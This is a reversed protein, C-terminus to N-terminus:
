PCQVETFSSRDRGAMHEHLPRYDWPLEASETLARIKELAREYDSSDPSDEGCFFLRCALPRGERATCQAGSQYGCSDPGFRRRAKGSRSVLFLVELVTAYLRHGYTEFHCCEGCSRCNCGSFREDLERYLCALADLAKERQANM